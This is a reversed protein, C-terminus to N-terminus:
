DDPQPLASQVSGRTPREAAEAGSHEFVDYRTNPNTPIRVRKLRPGPASSNRSSGRCHPPLLIGRLSFPIRKDVESMRKAEEVEVENLYTHIDASQEV